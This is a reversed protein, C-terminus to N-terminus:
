RARRWGNMRVFRQLEDTTVRVGVAGLKWSITAHRNRDKVYWDFISGAYACLADGLPGSGCAVSRM